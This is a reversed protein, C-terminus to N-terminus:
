AFALTLAATTTVVFEEDKAWLKLDARGQAEVATIEGGCTVLGPFTPRHYRVEYNVVDAVEPPIWRAVAECMLGLTLWGHLIVGPFGMEVMFRHDWHQRAYDDTAGAYKVLDLTNITRAYIPVATGASIQAISSIRDM